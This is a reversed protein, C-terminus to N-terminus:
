GSGILAEFSKRDPGKEPNLLDGAGVPSANELTLTGTESQFIDEVPFHDCLVALDQPDYAITEHQM